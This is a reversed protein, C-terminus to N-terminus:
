RGHCEVHLLDGHLNAVFFWLEDIPLSDVSDEDSLANMSQMTKMAKKANKLFAKTIKLVMALEFVRLSLSVTVCVSSSAFTVVTGAPLQAAHM